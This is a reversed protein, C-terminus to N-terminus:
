RHRVDGSTKFYMNHEESLLLQLSIDLGRAIYMYSDSCYRSVQSLTKYEVVNLAVFEKM